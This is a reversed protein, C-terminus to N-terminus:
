ESVRTNLWSAVLGISKGDKNKRWSGRERGQWKKGLIKVNRENGFPLSLFPRSLSFVPFSRKCPPM